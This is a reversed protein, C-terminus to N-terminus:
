AIAEDAMLDLWDPEPSAPRSRFQALQVQIEADSAHSRERDARAEARARDVPSFDLRAEPDSQLEAAFDNWSTMVAAIEALNVRDHSNQEVARAVHEGLGRLRQTPGYADGLRARLVRAKADIEAWEAALSEIESRVVAQIAASVAARAAAVAEEAEHEAGAFDSVIAAAAERRLEITARAAAAKSHERESVPGPPAAGSMFAIRMQEAMAGAARLEAAQLTEGERVIEELMSRARDATARAGNLAVEAASLNGQAAKLASRAENNTM